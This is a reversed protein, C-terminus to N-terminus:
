KGLKAKLRNTIEIVKGINKAKKADELESELTKVEEDVGGGSPSGIERPKPKEQAPLLFPKSEVLESVVDKIGNVAGDEIKVGTFDALKLADEVYAIGAAQAEVIFANTIKEREVKKQYESLQAALEAKEQEYKKALEEAREKESLEALRRQEAAEELETLKTKLEDHDAYKKRERELRKAVIEDLEEQTFTKVSDDPKKDEPDGDGAGNDGGGNDDGAFLQLDLSLPLKRQEENFKTM